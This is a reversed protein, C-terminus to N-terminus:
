RLTRAIRVTWETLESITLTKMGRVYTNLTDGIPELWRQPISDLGGMVAMANMVQAANCDVDQGCMGILHLTKDFDGEGYWMSIIQAAVNPYAHIWNYKRFNMECNSWASRWSRHKSCTQMAFDVTDYYESDAPIHSQTLRLLTKVDREVYCLSVLVANYVEGLIGNNHHSVSGDKWALASAKEPNGPHLMGIIGGRMQAGIWERYPNNFSGSDPPRIGRRLNQLAIDEASWGFPLLETWVLGIDDATLDRGYRDIAELLALEYTIDDNYTNPKRPYDYVLGLTRYISATTYGEMATGFAGGVIQGLWGAHTRQKYDDSEIDISYAPLPVVSKRYQDYDEYVAYRWYLSNNDRVARSCALQLAHTAKSLALMDGTELAVLGEDILAEADPVIYGRNEIAQVGAIIIREKAYSGPVTSDWLMRMNADQAAELQGMGEEWIRENDPDPELRPEQELMFTFEREWAKM